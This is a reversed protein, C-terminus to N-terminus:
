NWWYFGSHSTARYFKPTGYIEKNGECLKKLKKVVKEWEECLQADSLTTLHEEYEM